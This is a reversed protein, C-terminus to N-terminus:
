PKKKPQYCRLMKRDFDLAYVVGSPSVALDPAHTEGQFDAPPAVIAELDGSPKHIKIRVLGKEATVFSGNPMVAMQAPNCCGSFGEIGMSTREWYERLHGGYTYNEFAHKGPNVVWLEGEANIALEFYPSPVIFGHLDTSDRKGTFSGSLTGDTHYRLVRRNGADAAFLLTDRTAMSTIWTSDNQMDWNRILKGEPDFEGIYRGFSVYVRGPTATVCVPSEALSTKAIKEGQPNMILLFYDEVLYLKDNAFAIGRLDLDGFTFDETEAYAIMTTDVSMFPEVSYEYPNGPRKDPRSKLVDTVVLAIIALALLILIATISKRNM